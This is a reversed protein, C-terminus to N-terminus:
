IVRRLILLNVAFLLNNLDLSSVLIYKQRYRYFTYAFGAFYGRLVIGCRPVELVVWVWLGCRIVGRPSEPCYCWCLQFPYCLPVNRSVMLTSLQRMRQFPQAIIQHRKGLSRAMHLPTSSTARGNLPHDDVCPM